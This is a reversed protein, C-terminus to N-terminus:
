PITRAVLAAGARVDVRLMIEVGDGDSDGKSDGNSDGNSDGDGDGNGDCDAGGCNSRHDGCRVDGSEM